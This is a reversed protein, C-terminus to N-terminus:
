NSHTIQHKIIQLPPNKGRKSIPCADDVSQQMATEMEETSNGKISKAKV